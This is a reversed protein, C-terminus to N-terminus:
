PTQVDPRSILPSGNWRAGLDATEIEGLADEAMVKWDPSRPDQSRLGATNSLAGYLYADPYSTLLWNTPAADSLATFSYYDIEVTYVADPKPAFIIESGVITYARPVDSGTSYWTDRSNPTLFQLTRIPDTNVRLNRMELFDTPLALAAQSAVTSATSRSEMDRVRLNRKVKAEFLSILDKVRAADDPRTLWNAVAVQLEQYTGIAM